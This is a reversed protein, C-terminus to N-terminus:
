YKFTLGRSDPKWGSAHLHRTRYLGFYHAAQGLAVLVLYALLSFEFREHLFRPGPDRNGLAVALLWQLVPVARRIGAGILAHTGIGLRRGSTFTAGRTLRLAAPTM